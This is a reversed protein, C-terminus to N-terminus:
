AGLRARVPQNRPLFVWGKDIMAAREASPPGVQVDVVPPFYDPASVRTVTLRLGDPLDMVLGPLVRCVTLEGGSTAEIQVWIEGDDLEVRTLHLVVGAVTVTTGAEIRVTEPPLGRTSM